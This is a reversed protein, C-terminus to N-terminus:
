WGALCAICSADQKDQRHFNAIASFLCPPLVMSCFSLARVEEVRDFCCAYAEALTCKLGKTTRFLDTVEVVRMCRGGTRAARAEGNEELIDGERSGTAADDQTDRAEGSVGGGRDSDDEIRLGDIKHASDKGVQVRKDGDEGSGTREGVPAIGQGM